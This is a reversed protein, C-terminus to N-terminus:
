PMCKTGNFCKHIERLSQLDKDSWHKWLADKCCNFNKLMRLPIPCSFDPDNDVIEDPLFINTGHILMNPTLTAFQINEELHWLPHNKLIVEAELSAKKLQEFPLRHTGFSKCLINKTLSVMRDFLGGGSLNFIWEVQLKAFMTNSDADQQCDKLWKVTVKFTKANDTILKPNGRRAIFEKLWWKFTDTKTNKVLDLYIPQSAAWTFLALYAKRFEGKAIKYEFSGALDVGINQFARSPTTRFKPLM